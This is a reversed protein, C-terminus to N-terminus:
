LSASDLERKSKIQWRIRGWIHVHEGLDCQNFTVIVDDIAIDGKPNTCSQCSLAEFVLRINTSHTLDVRANIWKDAQQGAM